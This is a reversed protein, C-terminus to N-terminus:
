FRVRVHRLVASVDESTPQILQLVRPRPIGPSFQLDMLCSTSALNRQFIETRKQLRQCLATNRTSVAEQMERRYEDVPFELLETLVKESLDADVTDTGDNLKVVVNWNPSLPKSRSVVTAIYAKVRIIRDQGFPYKTLIQSLYEFPASYYQLGPGEKIDSECPRCNKRNIASDKSTASNNLKAHHEMKFMDRRPNTMPLTSDKKVMLTRASIINNNNSTSSLNPNWTTNNFALDQANPPKIEVCELDEAEPNDTIFDDKFIDDDNDECLMEVDNMLNPKGSIFHPETQVFPDHNDSASSSKRSHTNFEVFKTNSTQAKKPQEMVGFRQKFYNKQEPFKMEVCEEDDPVPDEGIFDDEFIGGDDGECFMKLDDREFQEMEYTTKRKVEVTGERNQMGKELRDIQDMDIEEDNGFYDENDFGAIIDDNDFFDENHVTGSQFQRSQTARNGHSGQREFAGGNKAFSTKNSHATIFPRLQTAENKVESRQISSSVNYDTANNVNPEERQISEATRSVGPQEPPEQGIVQHLVNWFSNEELLQVSGGLVKVNNCTLLLAGLRCSVPCGVQIKTGPPTTVKLSPILQYEMGFVTQTGDTLELLLMRSPKIKPESPNTKWNLEEPDDQGKLKQIQSYAAEGVNLVSNVQLNFYGELKCNETNGLERPLRPVSSEQIDAMLWQEYILDNLELPTLQRDENDEKVFNICAELWENQTYVYRSELWCSVAAM